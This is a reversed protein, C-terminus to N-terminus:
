LAGESVLLDRKTQTGRNYGGIGGTTPVVRHCPVKPDDNKNLANGVARYANPNGIRAAVAKYTLTEGKPIRRVVKYVAEQFQTLQKKKWEM